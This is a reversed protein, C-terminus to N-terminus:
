EIIMSLRFGVAEYPVGEVARNRKTVVCNGNEISTRFSGGRQVYVNRDNKGTKKAKKTLGAACFPNELGESELYYTLSMCDKCFEAVNGTMDFLGLENGKKCGISHPFGMSNELVWGAELGNNTGSYLFNCSKNGGRAAYEWQAESPLSFNLGTLANIREVFSECQAYSVKYVPLNPNDITDADNHVNIGLRADYEMITKWEELTVEYKNMYYDTLSIAHICEEGNQFSYTPFNKKAKKADTGMVFAGGEVLVMNDIIKRIVVKQDDKVEPHWKVRTGNRQIEKSDMYFFVNGQETKFDDFECDVVNNFDDGLLGYRNDRKAVFGKSVPVLITDFQPKALISERNRLGYKGRYDIIYFTKGQFSDSRSCSLSQIFNYGYCFLPLLVISIMWNFLLITITKGLSAKAFFSSRYKLFVLLFLMASLGYSFCGIGPIIQSLDILFGVILTCLVFFVKSKQPIPEFNNSKFVVITSVVFTSLLVPIAIYTLLPNMIRGVGYALVVSVFAGLLGSVMLPSIGKKRNDKNLQAYKGLIDHTFEIREVGNITNKKLIRDALLVDLEGRTVKGGGILRDISISDRHGRPTLLVDELYKVAKPSVKRMSELYFDNVVNSGITNILDENITLLGRKTMENYVRFMFLSLLFPEIRNNVSCSNFEKASLIGIIREAVSDSVIGKSPFLIVERAQDSNMQTISYRTKRLEPINISYVYDDFRPLYDERLSCVIRYDSSQNYRFSDVDVIKERISVPPVGSSLEDLSNFFQEAISEKVEDKFLEELQDIIIVPTLFDNKSSWFEHTHFFFWLSDGFAVLESQNKTLPTIDITQREANARVISIIQASISKGSKLDMSRMSINVVFYNKDVLKPLIGANLLSTKGVGSPGYLVTFRNNVISDTLTETEKSRGYFLTSDSSTYSDLGKWPNNFKETMM